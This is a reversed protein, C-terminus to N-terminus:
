TVAFGVSLMVPPNADCFEKDSWTKMLEQPSKEIWM